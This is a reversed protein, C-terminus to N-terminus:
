DDQPRPVSPVTGPPRVVPTPRGVSPPVTVGPRIRLTSGDSRATLTATSTGSRNSLALQIAQPHGFTARQVMSLPVQVWVATPSDAWEQPPSTVWGLSDSGVRIETPAAGSFSVRVRMPDASGARERVVEAPEVSTVRPPGEVEVYKPYSAGARTTVVVAYRGPTTRLTSPLYVLADGGDFDIRGFSTPMGAVTVQLPESFRVGRVDFLYATESPLGPRLSTPAIQTIEAPTTPAVDVRIPLANTPRGDVVMRVEITGPVSFWESSRVVKTWEEHSVSGGASGPTTWDGGARRMELHV